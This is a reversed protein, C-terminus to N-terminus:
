KSGGNGGVVAGNYLYLTSNADMTIKRGNDFDVTGFVSVSMNNYTGCNCNVTVTVGAPIVVSDGSSPVGSPSWTGSTNWNGTSATKTVGFGM